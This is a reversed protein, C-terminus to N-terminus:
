RRRKVTVTFTATAENASSDTAKCTVKTRGVKFYSRSPPRCTVPVVGDVDDRAIVAFKVRVRKAKKPARMVVNRAGVFMPPALDFDHGPVELTGAFNFSVTGPSSSPVYRVDLMGAGSAAAFLGTGAVVKFGLSYVDVALPPSPSCAPSSASLTVTGKGAVTLTITTTMRPCAPDAENLLLVFEVSVDGLGQVPSAGKNEYCDTTAPTGAACPVPRITGGLRAELKFTGTPRGAEVAGVASSGALGAMIAIVLSIVARAM